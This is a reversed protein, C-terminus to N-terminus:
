ESAAVEVFRSRTATDLPYQQHLERPHNNFLLKSLHTVDIKKFPRVYCM